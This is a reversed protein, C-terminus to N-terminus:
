QRPKGLRLALVLGLAVVVVAGAIWPWVPTGGSEEAAADQSDAGPPPVPSGGGQETLKFPVQGTVPHGDNSLVRYGIRYDGVPGLEGVPVRVSSGEVQAPADAWHSGGPGVVTVTNYGDGSRVPQDFDLRVEQPGARLAAGEEPTSGVLTNHALATGAAGLLAALGLACIVLARRM